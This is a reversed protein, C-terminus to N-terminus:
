FSWKIYKIIECLNSKENMEVWGGFTTNNLSFCLKDLLTRGRESLTIVNWPEKLKLIVPSDWFKPLEGWVPVYSRPLASLARAGLNAIFLSTENKMKLFHKRKRLSFLASSTDLGGGLNSISGVDKGKAITKKGCRQIERLVLLSVVYTGNVKREDFENSWKLGFSTHCWFCAKYRNFLLKISYIKCFKSYM